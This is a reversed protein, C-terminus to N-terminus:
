FNSERQSDPLLRQRGFVATSPQVGRTHQATQQRGYYSTVIKLFGTRLSAPRLSKIAFHVAIKGQSKAAVNLLLLLCILGM